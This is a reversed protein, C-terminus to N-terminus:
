SPVPVDHRRAFGANRVDCWIGEDMGARFARIEYDKQLDYEPVEPSERVFLFSYREVAFSLREMHARLTQYETIMLSAAAIVEGLSNTEM